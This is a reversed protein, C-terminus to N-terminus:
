YMIYALDLSNSALIPAGSPLDADDSQPLRAVGVGIQTDDEGGNLLLVAGSDAIIWNQRGAPLQPDVPVYAAGAKL